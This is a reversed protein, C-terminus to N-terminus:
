NSALGIIRSVNIVGCNDDRLDTIKNHQHTATGDTTQTAQSFQKGSMRLWAPDYAAYMYRQYEIAIAQLVEPEHLNCGFLIQYYAEAMDEIDEFSLGDVDGINKICYVNNPSLLYDNAGGSCGAAIADEHLDITIVRKDFDRIVTFVDNDNFVPEEPITFCVGAEPNWAQLIPGTMILPCGEDFGSTEGGNNANLLSDEVCVNWQHQPEFHSNTYGAKCPNIGLAPNLGAHSARAFLIFFVILVFFGIAIFCSLQTLRYM